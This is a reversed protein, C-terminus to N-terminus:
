GPSARARKDERGHVMGLLNTWWGRPRSRLRRRRRRRRARPPTSPPRRQPPSGVRRRCGPARELTAWVDREVTPQFQGRRRRPRYPPRTRGAARPHRPRSTQNKAAARPTMPHYCAPRFALCGCGGALWSRRAPCSGTPRHDHRDLPLARNNAPGRTGPPCRTRARAGGSDGGQGWGSDACPRAPLRCDERLRSLQQRQRSWSGCSAAPAQPQLGYAPTAAVPTGTASM